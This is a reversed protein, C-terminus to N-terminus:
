WRGGERRQRAREKDWDFTRGRAAWPHSPEYGLWLVRLRIVWGVIWRWWKSM